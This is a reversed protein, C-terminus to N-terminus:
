IGYFKAVKKYRSLTLDCLTKIENLPIKRQVARAPLKFFYQLQNQRLLKPYLFNLFVNVEILRTTIKKFRVKIDEKKNGCNFLRIYCGEIMRALTVLINKENNKLYNFDKGWLVVDRWYGVSLERLTTERHVLGTVITDDIPIGQNMNDEGYVFLSIKRIPVPLRRSLNPLIKIKNIIYKFFSGKVIVGTDIDEILSAIDGYLYGGYVFISIPAVEPIERRLYALVFNPLWNLSNIRNILIKKRKEDFVSYFVNRKILYQEIKNQKGFFNIKKDSLAVLPFKFQYSNNSIRPIKQNSM